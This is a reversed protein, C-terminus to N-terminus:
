PYKKRPVSKQIIITLYIYVSFYQGRLPITTYYNYLM